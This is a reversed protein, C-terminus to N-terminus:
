MPNSNITRTVNLRRRVGTRSGGEIEDAAWDKAVELLFEKYRMKTAPYYPEYYKQFHSDRFNSRYVLLRKTQRKKSAGNSHNNCVVKENRSCQCGGM